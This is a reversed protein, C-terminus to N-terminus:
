RARLEFELQRESNLQKTMDLDVQDLTVRNIASQPTIYQLSNGETWWGIAQRVSTDKLAILYITAADSPRERRPAAATSTETSQVASKPGEFVQMGSRTQVTTDPRPTEPGYHHNIVVSPAPQQPVVVTINPQEQQQQVPYGGYYGPDYYVPVAYPVVVTRNRRNGLDGPRNAGYVGPIPRGSVVAGLRGAHTQQHAPLGGPYLINGFRYANPLNPRGINPNVVGPVQGFASAAILAAPIMLKM